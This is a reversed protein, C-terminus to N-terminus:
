QLEFVDQVSDFEKEYRASFEEFSEEEHPNHADHDAARRVSTSFGSCGVLVASPVGALIPVRRATYSSRFFTSPQKRTALRLLTTSSM